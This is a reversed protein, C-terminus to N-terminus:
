KIQGRQNFLGDLIKGLVKGLQEIQDLLVANWPMRDM